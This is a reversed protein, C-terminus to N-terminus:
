MHVSWVDMWDNEDWGLSSGVHEREEGAFNVAVYCVVKCVVETYSKEWFLSFM